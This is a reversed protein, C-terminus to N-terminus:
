LFPLFSKKKQIKVLEDFKGSTFSDALEACGGICQGRVFVKPLSTSGDDVFKSLLVRKVSDKGDLLFWEAGVEIKQYDVGTSDLIAIAETSFPSLGYTYIVVPKSKVEAAIENSVSEPDVKSGLLSAQFKAEAAFVPKLLTMGRALGTVIPSPARAKASESGSSLAATLSLFCSHWVVLSAVFKM